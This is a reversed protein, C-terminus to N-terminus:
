GRFGDAALFALEEETSRRGLIPNRHPFRGFRAIIDHHHRAWTLAESDGLREYLQVGVRQAEIDESHTFPLYFFTRLGIDTARDHGSQIAQIATALGAADSLYAQATGRFLNRPMQDLLLLLALAGAPTASWVAFTGTRAADVAERFRDCAADFEPEAEFWRYPGADRWFQVIEEPDVVSVSM